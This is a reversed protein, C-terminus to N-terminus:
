KNRNEYFNALLDQVSTWQIGGYRSNDLTVIVSRKDIMNRMYQMGQWAPYLQEKAPSFFKTIKIISSLLFLGGTRIMKFPQGTIKALTTSIERPSIQDGYVHLDRPCTDDLAAYATFQATDEVTTFGMKHDANGWYLVWKKNFLIMPIEDTLMDMFAGNFISTPKIPVTSIYNYFKRRIDLNRNEGDDFKTYDISYDSPIFRPVGAAIAGELLRKQTGLIVDELGALASVVCSAGKCAAALDDTASFDVKVVHVGMAKLADAKKDETTFRVLVRVEAGLAVLATCIQSGLNGTGGAVVIIKRDM